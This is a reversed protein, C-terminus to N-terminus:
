KPMLAKIISVTSNCNPAQLLLQKENVSLPLLELWRQAIWSINTMEKISYLQDIDSHQKFIQELKDALYYEDATLKQDPWNAIYHVKATKLGDDEIIIEDIIFRKIGEVNIGLFGDDLTYFDIIKVLTGIPSIHGLPGSQNADMMVVGFGSTAKASEKVMRIYRDEIIRLPLRGSPLIHSPLPFLAIHPPQM